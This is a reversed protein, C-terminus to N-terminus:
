GSMEWSMAELVIGGSMERPTIDHPDKLTLTQTITAM